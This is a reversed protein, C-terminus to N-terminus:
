KCGVLCRWPESLTVGFRQDDLQSTRALLRLIKTQPLHGCLENGADHRHDRQALEIHPRTADDDTRFIYAGACPGPNGRGVVTEPPTATSTPRTVSSSEGAPRTGQSRGTRFNRLCLARRKPKARNTPAEDKSGRSLATQQRAEQPCLAAIVRLQRLYCFAGASYPSLVSALRPALSSRWSWRALKM